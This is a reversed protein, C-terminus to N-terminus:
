STCWSPHSRVASDAIRAGSWKGIEIVLRLGFMINWSRYGNPDSAAIPFIYAAGVMYQHNPGVRGAHRGEPHPWSDDGEMRQLAM